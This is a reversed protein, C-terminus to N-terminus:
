KMDIYDSTESQEAGNELHNFNGYNPQSDFQLQSYDTSGSTSYPQQLECYNDSNQPQVNSYIRPDNTSPNTDVKSDKEKSM